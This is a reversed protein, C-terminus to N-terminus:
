RIWRMRGVNPIWGIRRLGEVPMLDTRLGSPWYVFFARGILQDRPVTGLQYAEGRRRLHPGVDCWWRSDASQPSNDGLMYYEGERLEIPNDATGWGGLKYQRFRMSDLQVPTYYVDREVALHTLDLDINEAEITPPFAAPLIPDSRIEAVTALLGKGTGGARASPPQLWHTSLVTKGSVTLAVRYDVNEFAVEVPRDAGLPSVRDEALREAEKFRGTRGGHLWVGGDARVTAWFTRGRRSLAFRVFGDGGRRTLVCRVHLDSVPNPTPGRGISPPVNYGSFDDIPRGDLEIAERRGGIGRFTFWRDLIKWHGEGQGTTSRWPRSGNAHNQPPFDADYVVNWLASQAPKNKLTIELTRDLEDLLLRRDALPRTALDTTEAVIAPMEAGIADRASLPQGARRAEDQEEDLEQARRLLYKFRRQRDLVARAEASLRETPVVFVDGDLVELVEEPLGILRKIFNEEGDHPNKFVTVDWRKPSMLDGGIDLPWKFVLIRDGGETSPASSHDYFQSTQNGYGCNPCQSISKSSIYGTRGQSPDALGYAYEWGCNACTTTGHRGYLTSAMSGTPIVFAEIVFARFVFALIFAVVLSEITEKPGERPASAAETAAAPQSTGGQPAAM